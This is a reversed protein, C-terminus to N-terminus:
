SGPLPLPSTHPQCFFFILSALCPKPDFQAATHSRDLPAGPMLAGDPGWQGPSDPAKLTLLAPCRAGGGGPGRSSLSTTSSCRPSAPKLASTLGEDGLARWFPALSGQDAGASWTRPGSLPLLRRQETAHVCAPLQKCPEWRGNEPARSPLPWRGCGRIPASPLKPAAPLRSPLFDRHQSKRLRSVPWTGPSVKCKTM